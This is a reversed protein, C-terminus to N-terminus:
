PKQPPIGAGPRKKANQKQNLRRLRREANDFADKIAGQLDVRQKSSTPSHEGVIEHNPPVHVLVRARFLDGTDAKSQERDISVSCTTIHDCFRELKDIRDMIYARDDDSPDAHRFSIEPPAEM